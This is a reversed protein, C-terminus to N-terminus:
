PKGSSFNQSDIPLIPFPTDLFLNILPQLARANCQQTFRQDIQETPLLTIPAILPIQAIAATM